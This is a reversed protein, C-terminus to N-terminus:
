EWFYKGKIKEFTKTDSYKEPFFVKQIIDVISPPYICYSDQILSIQIYQLIITPTELFVSQQTGHLYKQVLLYDLRDFCLFIYMFDRVPGIEGLRRTKTLKQRGDNTM